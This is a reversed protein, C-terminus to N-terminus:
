CSTKEDIFKQFEEFEGLSFGYQDVPYANDQSYYLYLYHGHRRVETIQFYPFLSASQIGSVRFGDDYFTYRATTSMGRSFVKRQVKEVASPMSIARYIYFLAVGVALVKIWWTLDFLFAMAFIGACLIGGALLSVLNKGYAHYRSFAQIAERTCDTENIFRPDGAADDSHTKRFQSLRVAMQAKKKKERRERLPIYVFPAALLLVLALLVGIVLALNTKVPQPKELIQTFKVSRVAEELLGAQEPPIEGEGSYIDFNLTHGNIVTGYVLEHVEGNETKQDLQVRYFPQGDVDFLTKEVSAGEGDSRPLEKDLFEAKEEESMGRLTYVSETTRNTQKQIKFSSGDEAYFGAIISMTQYEELISSADGLGAMTWSPDDEPVSPTFIYLYKEPVTFSFDEGEWEEASATLCMLSCLLVATLLAAFRKFVM